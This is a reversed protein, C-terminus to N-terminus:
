DVHILKIQTPNALRTCCPPGARYRMTVLKPLAIVEAYSVTIADERHMCTSFPGAEPQHSRHLRRLWNTSGFTAQQRARRFYQGRIRQATAEDFGSSVWQRTQWSYQIRKLRSLDWRWEFIHKERPFVGILRFPNIRRLPLQKLAKTAERASSSLITSNIVIGRSASNTRVQKAIAYWNILAFCGGNDNVAIWTGGNPESPYVVFCSGIRRRQPARGKVRTRQEDRNMGLAYGSRRAIFTVTCM